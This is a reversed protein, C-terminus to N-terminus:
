KSLSFRINANGDQIPIDHRIVQIKEKFHEICGAILGEALDGFHRASQYVLILENHTHKETVFKPLQAEPYLKKVEVHIISEITSLFTLSDPVGEFFHPYRYFFRGFLHQGFVNVLTGSAIGTHKSLAIVMTVLEEHPYTGVATYAGGNPLNAEDIIQEVLDTSFKTEVMDLFETFVIGKM